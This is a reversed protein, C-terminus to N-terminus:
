CRCYGKWNRGPLFRPVARGPPSCAVDIMDAGQEQMELAKGAAKEPTLFRGGSDPTINLIGIVYAKTGLSFHYKGAYFQDM